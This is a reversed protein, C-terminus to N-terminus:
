VSGLPKVFIMKKIRLLRLKLLFKFNMKIWLFKFLFSLNFSLLKIVNSSQTSKLSKLCLFSFFFEHTYVPLKTFPFPISVIILIAEFSGLIFKINYPFIFVNSSFKCLSM